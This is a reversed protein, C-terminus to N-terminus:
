PVRILAAGGGSSDIQRSERHDKLESLLIASRTKARFMQTEAVSVLFVAHEKREPRDDDIVTDSSRVTCQDIADAVVVHTM